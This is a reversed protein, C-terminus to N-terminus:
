FKLSEVVKEVRRKVKEDVIDIIIEDFPPRLVGHKTLNSEVWDATKAKQSDVFSQFKEQSFGGKHTRRVEREKNLLTKPKLKRWEIVKLRKTTATIYLVTNNKTALSAAQKEKSPSYMKKKTTTKEKTIKAGPIKSTKSAQKKAKNEKKTKEKALQDKLLQNARNQKARIEEKSPQKNAKKTVPVIAAEPEKKAFFSRIKTFISM